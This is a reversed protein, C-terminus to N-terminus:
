FSYGVHIGYNVQFPFNFYARANSFAGINFKNKAFTYDYRLGAMGGFHWERKETAYIIMDFKDRQYFHDLYVNLTTIGSLASIVKISHKNKKFIKYTVGLDMAKANYRGIIKGYNEKGIENEAFIFSGRNPVGPFERWKFLMPIGFPLHSYGTFIEIKPSITRFYSVTGLEILNYYSTVFDAPVYYRGLGLEVRNKKDQAFTTIPLSLILIIIIKISNKM